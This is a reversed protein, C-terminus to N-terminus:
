HRPRSHTPAIDGGGGLAEMADLPVSKGKSCLFDPGLSPSPFGPGKLPRLPISGTSLSSFASGKLVERFPRKSWSATRHFEQLTGEETWCQVVLGITLRSCPVVAWFIVAWSRAVSHTWSSLVTIQEFHIIRTQLRCSQPSLSVLVAVDPSAYGLYQCRASVSM